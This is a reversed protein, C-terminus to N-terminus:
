RYVEDHSGVNLLVIEQQTVNLTLTLRYSYTISIAYVGKFEGKLAHLKLHPQLPDNELDRLIQAFSKKLEPHNKIFKHAAKTFFPTWVWQYM